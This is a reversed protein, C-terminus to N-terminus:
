KKIEGETLSNLIEWGQFLFSSNYNGTLQFKIRTFNKANLKDIQYLTKSFTNIDTWTATTDLRYQITAGGSNECLTAIESITKASTKLNTFYIWHTQLDFTITTGNDTTGTDFKLVNGDDDGVLQYYNTGDDYIGASRIESGYSYIAWIQTSLTFRCVVNAFAVGGVTLDGVSWYLHDEDEWGCVNDWYSRPIAKIFDIIPRSIEQQNGDFNFQIFGTPPHHYFLGSKSEIISEQSYTGRNIYPDPDTSNVSFIRYIHNEKFVLLARPHRKLGRLKEGDQPSVQIYETGGTITSSTTVVDSYYVKDTSDEAVWIRSRFNEIYNGGPLSAVNVSGFNGSGGYTACGEAGNVMFTYDVFNTFRAKSTSTLGTRVSNWSSGDYSYVVTGAKALAKYNTGANNRYNAMGLIPVGNSIQSGLLTLGSRLKVAGITDFSMNLAMELTNQPILSSDIAAERVIGNNYNGLPIKEM